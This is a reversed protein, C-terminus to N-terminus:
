IKGQFQSGEKSALVWSMLSKSIKWEEMISMVLPFFSRLSQLDYKWICLIEMIICVCSRGRHRRASHLRQLRPHVWPAWRREKPILTVNQHRYQNRSQYRSWKPRSVRDRRGEMPTMFYNMIAHNHRGHGYEKKQWLITMSIVLTAFMETWWWNMTEVADAWRTGVQADYFKWRLVDEKHRSTFMVKGKGDLLHVKWFLHSLPVFWSCLLLYWIHWTSNMLNDAFTVKNPKSSNPYSLLIDYSDM